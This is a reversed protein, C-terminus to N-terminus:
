LIWHLKAIPGCYMNELVTSCGITTIGIFISRVGGKEGARMWVRGEKAWLFDEEWLLTKGDKLNWVMNCRKGSRCGEWEWYGLMKWGSWTGILNGRGLIESYNLILCKFVHTSNTIDYMNSIDRLNTQLNRFFWLMMDEVKREWFACCLIARPRCHTSSPNWADTLDMLVM